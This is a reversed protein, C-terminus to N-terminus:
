VLVPYGHMPVPPAHLSLAHDLPLSVLVPATRESLIPNWRIGLVETHDSTCVCLVCVCMCVCCVRVSM